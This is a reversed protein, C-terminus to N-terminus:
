NMTLQSIFLILGFLQFFIVVLLVWIALRCFNIARSQKWALSSLAKEYGTRCEETPFYSLYFPNGM